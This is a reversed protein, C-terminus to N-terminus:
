YKGFTGETSNLYKEYFDPPQNYFARHLKSLTEREDDPIKEDIVDMMKQMAQSVPNNNVFEYGEFLADFFTTTASTEVKVVNQNM